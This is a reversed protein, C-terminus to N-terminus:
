AVAEAFEAFQRRKGDALAVFNRQFASPFQDGFIHRVLKDHAADDAVSRDDGRLHAAAHSSAVLEKAFDM